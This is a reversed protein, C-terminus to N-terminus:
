IENADYKIIEIDKSLISSVAEGFQKFHPTEFHENLANVDKWQEIMVYDTEANADQYLNYGLCGTEAQSKAILDKTMDLLAKNEGNKVNIKALVFIM